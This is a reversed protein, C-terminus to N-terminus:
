IGRRQRHHNDGRELMGRVRALVLLRLAEPESVKLARGIDASNKHHMWMSAAHTIQRDSPLAPATM